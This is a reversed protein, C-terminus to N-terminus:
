RRLLPINLAHDVRPDDIACLENEINERPVRASALTLQLHFQRLKLVHQWPQRPAAHFHRLEAAPDASASRAFSLELSVPPPNKPPDPVDFLLDFIHAAYPRLLPLPAFRNRHGQHRQDAIRVRSFGRQEVSKGFRVHYRRPAARL